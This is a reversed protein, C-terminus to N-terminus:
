VMRNMRNAQEHLDDRLNEAFEAVERMHSLLTDRVPNGPAVPRGEGHDAGLRDNALRFREEAERIGYLAQHIRSVVAELSPVDQPKLSERIEQNMAATNM